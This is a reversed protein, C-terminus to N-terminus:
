INIGISPQLQLSNNSGSAGSPVPNVVVLNSNTVTCDGVDILFFGPSVEKYQCITGQSQTIKTTNWGIYTQPEYGQINGNADLVLKSFSCSGLKNPSETRATLTSQLYCSGGSGTSAKSAVGLIVLCQKIGLGSPKWLIRITGTVTTKLRNNTDIDAWMSSQDTINVKAWTIGHIVMKCGLNYGLPAQIIALSSSPLLTRSIEFELTDYAPDNDDTLGTSPTIKPNQLAVTSFRSLVTSNNDYGWAIINPFRNKDVDKLDSTKNSKQLKNWAKATIVDRIKQGPRASPM